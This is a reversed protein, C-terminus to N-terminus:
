SWHFVLGKVKRKLLRSKNHLWLLPSRKVNSSIMNDCSLEGPIENTNMYYFIKNVLSTRDLHSSILRTLGNVYKKKKKANKHIEIEDRDM